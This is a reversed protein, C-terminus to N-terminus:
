GSVIKSPGRIMAKCERHSRQANREARCIGCLTTKNRQKSLTRARLRRANSERRMQDMAREDLWVIAPRIPEGHEGFLGFTERQNSIAVGTIRAPDVKTTLERMALFTSRWWDEPDQEFYRPRPKALPIAARGDAVPAGTRDWAIAKTATTSSDIGIVLDRQM